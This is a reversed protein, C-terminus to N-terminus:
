SMVPGFGTAMEPLFRVSLVAQRISFKRSTAIWWSREPRSLREPLETVAAWGGLGGVLFFALSLGLLSYRRIATRASVKNASKM